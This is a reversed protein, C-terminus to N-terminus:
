HSRWLSRQQAYKRGLGFVPTFPAADGGNAFTVYKLTIIYTQTGLDATIIGPGHWLWVEDLFDLLFATVNQKTVFNANICHLAEM